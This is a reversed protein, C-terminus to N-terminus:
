DCCEVFATWYWRGKKFEFIAYWPFSARRSARRSNAEPPAVRSPRASRKDVLATNPVTGQKLVKDLATWANTYTLSDYFVFADDRTDGDQNDDGVGPSCYFDPTM